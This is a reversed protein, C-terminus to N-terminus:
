GSGWRRRRGWSTLEERLPARALIECGGGVAAVSGGAAATGAAAGGGALAWSYGHGHRWWRSNPLVDAAM